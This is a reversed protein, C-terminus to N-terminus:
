IFPEVLCLPCCMHFPHQKKVLGLSAAAAKAQEHQKSLFGVTATQHDVNFLDILWLVVQLLQSVSPRRTGLLAARGSLHAGADPFDGGLRHASHSNKGGSACVCLSRRSRM